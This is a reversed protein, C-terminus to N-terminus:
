PSRRQAAALADRRASRTVPVLLAMFLVGFAVATIPALRAANSAVIEVLAFCLYPLALTGAAVLPRVSRRFVFLSAIVLPLVLVLKLPDGFAQWNWWVFGASMGVCAAAAVRHMGRM